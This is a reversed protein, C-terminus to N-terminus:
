WEDKMERILGDDHRNDYFEKFGNKNQYDEIIQEQSPYYQKDNENVYLRKHQTDNDFNQVVVEGAWYLVRIGSKPKRKM